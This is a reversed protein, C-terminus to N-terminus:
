LPQLKPIYVRRSRDNRGSRPPWAWCSCKIKSRLSSDNRGGQRCQGVWEKLEHTGLLVVGLGGIRKRDGYREFYWAVGGRLPLSTVGSSDEKLIFFGTGM